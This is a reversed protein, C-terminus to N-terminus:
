RPVSVAEMGCLVAFLLCCFYLFSDPLLQSASSFADASAALAPSCRYLELAYLCFWKWCFYWM